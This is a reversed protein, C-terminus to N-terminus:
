NALFGGDTLGKVYHNIGSASRGVRQAISSVTHSGEAIATLM